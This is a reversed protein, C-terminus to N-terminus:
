FGYIVCEEAYVTTTGYGGVSQITIGKVLVTVAATWIQGTEVWKMDLSFRGEALHTSLTHNVTATNTKKLLESSTPGIYV